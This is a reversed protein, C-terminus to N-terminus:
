SRIVIEDVGDGTNIDLTAAIAVAESATKGAAMAGLAYDAGSGIAFPVPAEVAVQRGNMIWLKNEKDILLIDGPEDYQEPAKKTQGLIYEIIPNVRFANGSAGVVKWRKNKSVKFIKTVSMPTTGICQRKDSAITKGDYAITTM